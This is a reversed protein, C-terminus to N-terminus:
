KIRRGTIASRLNLAAIIDLIGGGFCFWGSFFLGLKWDSENFYWWADWIMFCSVLFAIVVMMIAVKMKGGIM